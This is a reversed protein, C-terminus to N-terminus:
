VEIKNIYDNAKSLELFQGDVELIPANSFGLAILKDVDEKETYEVHKAELKTKLMKCRPCNPVTYLIIM